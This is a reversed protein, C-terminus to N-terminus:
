WYKEFAIQGPTARRSTQYGKAGFYTRLEKVMEPNGCVMVRSHGPDLELGAARELRGDAILAPIRAALAGPLVERTVVPLYRLRDPGAAAQVHAIEERYALEATERVSHVLVIREFKRWVAPDRIISVYPGLGSGSALLWLDRGPALQGITLFGYCAKEIGIAHGPCLKAARTSFAGGPVLVLLFELWDETPASVVSLPRWVMDEASLGLGLRAYNGPTFRYEPPRSTRFSYLRQSWPRVALVREATWRPGAARPAGTATSAAAPQEESAPIGATLTDM